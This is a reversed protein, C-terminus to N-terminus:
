PIRSIAVGRLPSLVELSQSGESVAPSKSLSGGRPPRQPTRSAALRDRLTASGCIFTLVCLAFSLAPHAARPLWLLFDFPLHCLTFTFLLRLAALLAASTKLEAARVRPSPFAASKCVLDASVVVFQVGAQAPTVGHM